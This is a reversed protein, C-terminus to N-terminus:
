GQSSLKPFNGPEVVVVNTVWPFNDPEVSSLRRKQLIPINTIVKDLQLLLVRICIEFTGTYSGSVSELAGNMIRKGKMM